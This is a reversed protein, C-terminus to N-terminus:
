LRSTPDPRNSPTATTLIIMWLNKRSVFRKRIRTRVIVEIKGTEANAIAIANTGRAIGTAIAITAERVGGRAIVTAIANGETARDSTERYRRSILIPCVIAAEDANATARGAERDENGTARGGGSEIWVIVIETEISAGLIRGRGNWVTDNGNERTIKADLTNSTSMRDAEEPVVM